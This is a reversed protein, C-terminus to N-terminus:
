WDTAPHPWALEISGDQQCTITLSDEQSLQDLLQRWADEPEDPLRSIVARRAFQATPTLLQKQIRRALLEYSTPIHKVVAKRAM